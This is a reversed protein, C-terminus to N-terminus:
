KMTRASQNHHREKRWAYIQSEHLSLQRVAATVGVKEVLKLTEAKFELSHIFRKMKNTM